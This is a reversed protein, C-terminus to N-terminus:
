LAKVSAFSLFNRLLLLNMWSLAGMGSLFWRSEKGARLLGVFHKFSAQAWVAASGNPDMFLYDIGISGNLHKFFIRALTDNFIVEQEEEPDELKIINLIHPATHELAIEM